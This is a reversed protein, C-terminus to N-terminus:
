QEKKGVPRSHENLIQFRESAQYLLSFYGTAVDGVATTMVAKRDQESARLEARAYITLLSRAELKRM